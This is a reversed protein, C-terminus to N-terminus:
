AAWRTEDRGIVIAGGCQPCTRGYPPLDSLWKRDCEACQTADPTVVKARQQVEALGVAARLNTARATKRERAASSVRVRPRASKKRALAPHGPHRRRLDALFNQRWRWDSPTGAIVLMPQADHQFVLHAGRARDADLRYGLSELLEVAERVDSRM